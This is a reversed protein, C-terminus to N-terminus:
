LLTWAATLMKVTSKHRGNSWKAVATFNGNFKKEQSCIMVPVDGNEGEWKSVADTIIGSKLGMNYIMLSPTTTSDSKICTFKLFTNVWM